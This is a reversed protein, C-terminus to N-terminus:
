RQTILCPSPPLPTGCTSVDYFCLMLVTAVVGADVKGSDIANQVGRIARNKYVCAKREFRKDNLLWLQNASVALLASSLPAFEFSMPTLFTLYPNQSSSLSCNPCIVTIFYDFLNGDVSSYQQLSTSLPPWVTLSTEPSCGDDLISIKSTTLHLSDAATREERIEIEETSEPDDVELSCKQFDQM